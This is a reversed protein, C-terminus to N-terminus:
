RGGKDELAALREELSGVRWAELAATAASIMARARGISNDHKSLDLIVAEL